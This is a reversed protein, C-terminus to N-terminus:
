AARRHADAGQPAIKRKAAPDARMAELLKADADRYEALAVALPTNPLWGGKGGPGRQRGPLGFGIRLPTVCSHSKLGFHRAIDEASVRANWLYKFLAQDKVVRRRLKTRSPLGMHHARWSVAARTVGLYDAITQTSIAHNNWIRAFAEPELTQKKKM